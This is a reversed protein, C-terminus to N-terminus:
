IAIPQKVFCTPIRANHQLLRPKLTSDTMNICYNAYLTSTEDLICKFILIRDVMCFLFEQFCFLHYVDMYCVHRFLFFTDIWLM